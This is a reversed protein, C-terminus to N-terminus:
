SCALLLPPLPLLLLLLLLLLQCIDRAVVLKHGCHQQAELALGALMLGVPTHSTSSNAQTTQLVRTINTASFVRLICLESKQPTQAMYPLAVNPTSMYCGLLSLSIYQEAPKFQETHKCHVCPLQRHVHTTVVNEPTTDNAKHADWCGDVSLAM